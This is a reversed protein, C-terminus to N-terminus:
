LNVHRKLATSLGWALALKVLDPVIFPLVCWGLATALGIAGAQRAYVVMFWATGFAYCVILGLVLAAIKRAASGATVRELAWYLAATFLFGIIYGGTTGFLVGVGGMFQAFVPLGVAGLLVYTLVTFFGRRGGLLLLVLFVAFTQLTFPALPAPAPISIWSCVATLAACVAIYVLEATSFRKRSIVTESM